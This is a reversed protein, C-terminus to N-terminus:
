VSTSSCVLMFQDMLSGFIFLQRTYKSVYIFGDTHFENGGILRLKSM